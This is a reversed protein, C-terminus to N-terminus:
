RESISVFLMPNWNNKNKQIINGNASRSITCSWKQEKAMSHGPNEESSSSKKTAALWSNSLLGTNSLVPPFVSAESGSLLFNLKLNIIIEHKYKKDAM